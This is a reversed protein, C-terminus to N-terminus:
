VYIDFQRQDESEQPTPDFATESESGEDVNNYFQNVKMLPNEYTQHSDIKLTSSLKSLNQDGDDSPDSVSRVSDDDTKPNM